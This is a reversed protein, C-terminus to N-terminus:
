SIICLGELIGYEKVRKLKGILCEVRIANLKGTFVALESYCQPCKSM